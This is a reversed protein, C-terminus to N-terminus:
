YEIGTIELEEHGSPFHFVVRQGVQAGLLAQAIPSIWSAAEDYFETEDVGVIRYTAVEGNRRRVAVRAGFRVEDVPQSLPPVIEASLLINQLVRIRQDLKLLRHQKEGGDPLALVERRKGESLWTLEERLRGAGDNTMLNKAGAPLLSAKSLSEMQEPADDSERTFAKSM